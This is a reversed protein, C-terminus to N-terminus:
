VHSRLRRNRAFGLPPPAALDHDIHEGAAAACALAALLGAVLDVDGEVVFGLRQPHVRGVM